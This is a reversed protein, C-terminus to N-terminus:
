GSAPIFQIPDSGDTPMLANFTVDSQMVASGAERETSGGSNIYGRPIVVEGGKVQFRLEAERGLLYDDFQQASETEGFVTSECSLTQSGAQISMTLGDNTANESIENEASITTSVVEEAAPHSDWKLNTGLAPVGDNLASEDEFKGSGVLPVGRDGEIGDRSGAGRIVTLLQQATSNASDYTYVELDGEIDEPLSVRLSDYTSTSTKLVTADSSDLTLSESTTGDKTEIDVTAGTDSPDTSKVAITIASSPQDIQYKRYKTVTYQIECGVVSSDEPALEMSSEAPVCGRGYAELRTGKATATPASGSPHSKGLEQFYRHHWTNGTVINQKKEVELFSHSNAVRNDIGRLAGDAFADLPNNSSDVFFRELDYAVTLEHVEQQRNKHVPVYNGTGIREDFQADPEIETTEVVSSYLRLTPNAPTFPDANKDLEERVFYTDTRRVGAETNSPM